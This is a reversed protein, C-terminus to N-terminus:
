ARVVTTRTPATTTMPRSRCGTRRRETARDAKAPSASSATSAANGPQGRAHQRPRGARVCGSRGATAAADLCSEPIVVGAPRPVRGSGRSAICVLGDRGVPRSSLMRATPADVCGATPADTPIGVTSHLDSQSSSTPPANTAPPVKISAQSPIPKHCVATRRRWDRGAGCHDRSTSTSTTPSQPAAGSRSTEPRSAWGTATPTSRGAMMRGSRNTSSSGRRRSSAASACSHTCQRLRSRQHITM